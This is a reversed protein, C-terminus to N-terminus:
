PQGITEALELARNKALATRPLGIGVLSGGDRFVLKREILSSIAGNILEFSYKNKFHKKISESSRVRKELERYIDSTIIDISFKLVVEGRTDLFEYCGDEDIDYVLFSSNEKYFKKNWEQMLVIISRYLQRLKDSVTYNQEFYYCYSSTDFGSSKLFEDSFILGYFRHPSESMHVGEIRGQQLPAFRTTLVEVATAPPQLHFLSPIQEIMEEYSKCDDFPFGFLFNYHVIIGSQLGARMTLVNQAATVGKKMGKLIKTSFTEIGPQIEVFGSSKLRQIKDWSINSKLECTFSLQKSQFLLPLLDKYYQHPLIYDVFRVTPISYKESNSMIEELVKKEPKYSYVLDEKDIGCFVCHSKAGWWCGRSAEYPIVRWDIKIKEKSDLELLQNKYDDFDPMPSKEIPYNNIHVTTRPANSEKKAVYDKKRQANKALEVIYEEGPGTVVYNVFSFSDLINQGIPGKLAYGGFAITVSPDIKHIAKAMAISPITQDFLCSFAILDPNSLLIDEACERIYKPIVENRIKLLYEIVDQVCVFREDNTWDTNHNWLSSVIDELIRGQHDTFSNDLSRSFVFDNLAFVDAIRTYSEFKLFKLIKLNCYEVKVRINEQKLSAALISPGLAPEQVMAWPMVVISVAPNM